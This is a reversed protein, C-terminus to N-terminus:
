HAQGRMLYQTHVICSTCICVGDCICGWVLMPTDMVKAAAALVPDRQEYELYKELNMFTNIVIPALKCAKLDRLTM